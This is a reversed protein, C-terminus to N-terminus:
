CSAPQLLLLIVGQTDIKDILVFCQGLGAGLIKLVIVVTEAAMVVALASAHLTLM